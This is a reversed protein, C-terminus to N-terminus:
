PVGDRTAIDAAGDLRVGGVSGSLTVLGAVEGDPLRGDFGIRANLLPTGRLVLSPGTIAATLESNVNPGALRAELSVAGEAETTVLALDALRAVVSVGSQEPGYTGEI